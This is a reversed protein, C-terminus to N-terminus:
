AAPRRSARPAVRIAARLAVRPVAQRGHIAVQRSMLVALVAHLAGVRLALTGLSHGLRVGRRGTAAAMRRGNERFLHHREDAGREVHHTGDAFARRALERLGGIRVNRAARRMLHEVSGRAQGRPLEQFGQLSSVGQPLPSRRSASPRHSLARACALRRAPLCVPPM